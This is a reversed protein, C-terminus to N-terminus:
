PLIGIVGFVGATEFLAARWTFPIPDIMYPACNGPRYHGLTYVCENPAKLGMCYPLVPFRTFFHAGSVIPQAVPGWSHGYRELHVDEFYLPKHCLASAKWMFTVEAWERPTFLSGDDVSCVFPFDEGEVGTVGIELDISDLGKAKLEALGEACDEAATAREEALYDYVDDSPMATPEPATPMPEPATYEQVERMPEQMAPAEYPDDETEPAVTPENDVTDNNMPEDFPDPPLNDYLDESVSPSPLEESPDPVGFPREIADRLPDAGSQATRIAPGSIDSRYDVTRFLSDRRSTSAQFTPRQDFGRSQFSPTSQSVGHANRARWEASWAPMASAVVVVVALWGSPLWLPEAAPEPKTARDTARYAAAARLADATTVGTTNPPTTPRKRRSPSTM